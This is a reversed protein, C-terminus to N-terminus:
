YGASLDVRFQLSEGGQLRALNKAFVDVSQQVYDETRRVVDYWTGCVDM